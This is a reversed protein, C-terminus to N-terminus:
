CLEVVGQLLWVSEMSCMVKQKGWGVAIAGVEPTGPSLGAMFWGYFIRAMAATHWAGQQQLEEHAEPMAVVMVADGVHQPDMKGSLMRLPVEPRCSFRQEAGTGGQAYKNHLGMYAADLRAGHTDYTFRQQGLAATLRKMDHPGDSCAAKSGYFEGM